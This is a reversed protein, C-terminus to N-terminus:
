QQEAGKDVQKLTAAVRSDVFRHPIIFFLPVAAFLLLPVIRNV